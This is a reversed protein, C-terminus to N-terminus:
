LLCRVDCCCSVRAVPFVAARACAYRCKGTCRMRVVRRSVGVWAGMCGHVWAGLFGHVWAGMCGHVWADVGVCGETLSALTDLEADTLRVGSTDGVHIKFMERRADFEPLAIYV